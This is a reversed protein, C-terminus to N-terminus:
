PIVEGDTHNSLLWMYEATDNSNTKKISYGLEEKYDLVLIKYSLSFNNECRSTLLSDTETLSEIASQM